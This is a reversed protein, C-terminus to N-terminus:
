AFGRWKLWIQAATLMFIGTMGEAKYRPPVPAAEYPALEIRETFGRSTLGYTLGRYRQMTRGFLHVILLATDRLGGAFGNQGGRCRQATRMAHATDALLFIYRYMILTLEIVIQPMRIKKMVQLIELLPTTFLVFQLCALCASVRMFLGATRSLSEGTVYVTWPGATGIIWGSSLPVGTGANRGFELLLAPLSAAFFLLSGGYVLWYLKGPVRAYLLTWLTIWGFVALQVPPASAYSLIFLCGAFGCKWVPSLGRFANAYSITDIRKLMM